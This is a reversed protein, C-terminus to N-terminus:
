RPRAVSRERPRLRLVKRDVWGIYGDMIVRCVDIGCRVAEVRAGDEIRAVIADRDTLEVIGPALGCLVICVVADM